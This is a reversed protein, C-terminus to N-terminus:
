KKKDEMKWLIVIVNEVPHNKSKNQIVHCDFRDITVCM